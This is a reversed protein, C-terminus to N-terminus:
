QNGRGERYGYAPNRHDFDLDTLGVNIQLQQYAYRELLHQPGLAEGPRPWDYSEYRIPLNLEDDVYIHAVHFQLHARRVPNEVRIVTTARDGLMVGEIYTVVVETTGHTADHQIIEEGVEVLKDVLNLIGIDTIPYKNGRMALFGNPDLFQTGALRGAISNEHGILRNDNQGQVFIAETGIMNRPYVFHLYVSFPEHRVKLRMMQAGQLTGGVNEQKSLLATYDRIAAVAPRGEKAWRLVPALPHEAAAPAVQPVQAAPAANTTALATKVPASAAILCALGLSLMLLPIKM